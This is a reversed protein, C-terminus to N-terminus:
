QRTTLEGNRATQGFSAARLADFEAALGFELQDLRHVLKAMSDRDSVHESSIFLGIGCAMVAAGGVGGAMFYSLQASTHYTGSLGWWGLFIMLAGGILLVVGAAQRWNVPATAGRGLRISNSTELLQPTRAGLLMHDEGVAAAQRNM